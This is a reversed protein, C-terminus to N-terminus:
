FRLWGNGVEEGVVVGLEVINAGEVLRYTKGLKKIIHGLSCLM